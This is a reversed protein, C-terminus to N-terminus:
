NGRELGLPDRSINYANHPLRLICQSAALDIVGAALPVLGRTHAWSGAGYGMVWLVVSILSENIEAPSGPIGV